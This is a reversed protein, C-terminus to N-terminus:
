IKTIIRNVGIIVEAMNDNFQKQSWQEIEMETTRIKGVEEKLDLVKKGAADVENRFTRSLIVSTSGLRYHEAIIKEAPLLGEGIKAIGGFGWPIGKANIKKGMYEVLGGSLPEFMFSLGLSIHLDNLGIFLEDIGKVALIDDLHVMAQATEIMPITYARGDVMSIFNEVDHADYAMPLMLMDAGEDIARDIEMKSNSHIPNVRVLLKSKIIVKRIPAITDLTYQTIYTNRGRQREAKNIYELDIFIRDVGCDQARKAYAPDGTLLMLNMM